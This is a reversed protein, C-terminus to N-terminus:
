YWNEGVSERMCILINDGDDDDEDEHMENILQEYSRLGTRACLVANLIEEWSGAMLTKVLDLEASTAIGLEVMDDYFNFEKNTM